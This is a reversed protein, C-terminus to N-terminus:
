AAEAIEHRIEKPARIWRCEDRTMGYVLADWKGEIGLRLCGEYRFGLRRIGDVSRTNDTRSMATVRAARSFFTTFIANLLRRTIVRPDDVATTMHVEFWSTFEGILVGTVKGRDRATACVWHPGSYDYRWYEGGTRDSLFEIADARLPEFSLQSVL